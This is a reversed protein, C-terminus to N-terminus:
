TRSPTGTGQALPVFQSIREGLQIFVRRFVALREEETDPERPLALRWALRVRDSLEEGAEREVREAIGSLGHGPLLNAGGDGDDVLTVVVTQEASDTRCALAVSRAGDFLDLRQERVM